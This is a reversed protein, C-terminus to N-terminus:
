EEKEEENLKAIEEDIKNIENRINEKEEKSLATNMLLNMLQEKTYESAGIIFSDFNYITTVEIVNIILPIFPLLIVLGFVEGIFVCINLDKNIFFYSLLVGGAFFLPYLIYIYFLYSFYDKYFDKRYKKFAKKHHIVNIMAMNPVLSDHIAITEKISNTIIHHIMLFSSLGIAVIYIVNMGFMYTENNLFLNILEENTEVANFANVFDPNTFLTILLPISALEVIILFFILVKIFAHIMRYGGFFNKKYYFAYNKFFNLLSYPQGSNLGSISYHLSFTFPIIVFPLLVLILPFFFYTLGLCVTVIVGYMMVYALALGYHAKTLSYVSLVSDEENKTKM